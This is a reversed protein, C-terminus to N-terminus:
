GEEDDDDSLLYFPLAVPWTLTTLWADVQEDPTPPFLKDTKLNLMAGYAVGGLYILLAVLAYDFPSM